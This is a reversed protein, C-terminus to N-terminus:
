GARDVSRVPHSLREFVQERLSRPRAGGGAARVLDPSRRPARRGHRPAQEQGGQRADGQPVRRRLLRRPAGQLRGPEDRCAEIIAEAMEDEPAAMENRISSRWRSWTSGSTRSPSWRSTPSARCRVAPTRSRVPRCTRAASRSPTRTAIATSSTATTAWASSTAPGCGATTPSRRRTRRPTTTTSSSCSSAAPAACGCSATAPRRHVARRHGPRRHDGRLGADAQGDVHRPVERVPQRPDAHIVTETMGYAAVVRMGLLEDLVPMILGFVGIKVTHEAPKDNMISQIVFPLLSIHTVGHKAVVEWFRSTSFKPQLVVTGGVGLISWIAWSQTNVHFFPCRPWTSATPTSSSTTPARGPRGVARQRPHARRGEPRSTTGSTFVIGAPCCRSPRASRCRRGPRRVAVRVVRERPGAPGRHRRRGSNDATVVTWKLEPAAEAVLAAYQPQTVAGVCGTHTAFYNIENAVSRNNTTVGVAGLRACAYWALVGEPCNDAHILVKDGKTVGRDALGAAVRNVDDVFERYTWTRDNGDKPEWVLFPHDPRHTAWHELLWPIDQGVMQFAAIDADSITTTM